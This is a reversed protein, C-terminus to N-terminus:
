APPDEALRLRILRAILWCQLRAPDTLEIADLAALPLWGQVYADVLPDIGGLADALDRTTYFRPLPQLAAEVDARTLAPPQRSDPM